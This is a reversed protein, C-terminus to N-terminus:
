KISFLKLLRNKFDNKQRIVVTADCEPCTFVELVDSEVKKEWNCKSCCYFTPVLPPFAM